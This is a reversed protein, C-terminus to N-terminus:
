RAHAEVFDTLARLGELARISLVRERRTSERRGATGGAVRRRKVEWSDYSRQPFMLHFQEWGIGEQLALLENETWPQRSM